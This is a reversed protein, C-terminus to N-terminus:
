HGREKRHVVRGGGEAPDRGVQVEASRRFDQQQERGEAQVDDDQGGHHGAQEASLAPHPPVHRHEDQPAGGAVQDAQAQPGHGNVPLLVAAPQQAGARTFDHHAGFVQGARSGEVVDGENGERNVQCHHTAAPAQHVAPEEQRQLEEEREKRDRQHLQDQPAQAAVHIMQIRDIESAKGENVVFDHPAQQQGPSHHKQWQVKIKIGMNHVGNGLTCLQQVPTLSDIHVHSFHEAKDGGDRESCM